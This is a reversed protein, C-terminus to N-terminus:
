IIKKLRYVYAIVEAVAQYLEAPIYSGVEVRKFLLRALPKNETIIVDNERAIEKIKEALHDQGKAVVMPASLSDDYKIAVAIHTPNTIVVTAKPVEQMMRHSAILRQREKIRAKIQPDGEMMKYEEKIEEKSMRLSKEYEFLQFGYDAVALVFLVAIMRWCVAFTIEGITAIGQAPPLDMLIALRPLEGWLYKVAVYGVLCTKVTAKLLEFLARKSFIRKFGNIPNIRNLDFKLPESVFLFGVQMLNAVFGAGVATIIIPGGMKVISILTSIILHRLTLLTLEEKTYSICFNYLRQFEAAIYPIWAQLVLISLTLIIVTVLENSKVIQGKKRAEQKRRPTAKETKEGSFLQLDILLFGYPRM